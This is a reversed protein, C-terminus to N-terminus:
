THKIWGATACLQWRNYDQALPCSTGLELTFLEYSTRLLNGTLDDPCHFFTVLRLLHEIGQTVYLDHM